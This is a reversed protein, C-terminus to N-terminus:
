LFPNKVTLSGFRRGNQLDESYLLTCDLDLAAQIVLADYFSVSNSVYLKSAREYFDFTPFHVCLPKLLETMVVDVDEASLKTKFKNLAVNMFEQVVQSSIVANEELIHQGILQQARKQKAPSTRDFQYVLINTDFFVKAKTAM